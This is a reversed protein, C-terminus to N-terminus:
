LREGGDSAARFRVDPSLAADIEQATHRVEYLGDRDTVGKDLATALRAALDVRGGLRLELEAAFVDERVAAPRGDRAHNSASTLAQRATGLRQTNRM